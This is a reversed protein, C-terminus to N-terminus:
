GQKYLFGILQSQYYNNLMEQKSMSYGGPLSPQGTPQSGGGIPILTPPLPVLGSKGTQPSQSISQTMMSSKSAASQQPALQATSDQSQTDRGKLMAPEAIRTESKESMELNTAAAQQAIADANQQTGRINGYRKLMDHLKSVYRSDTAYGESKLMQAAAYADAARNVGKYGKYDKYWQNVLHNV